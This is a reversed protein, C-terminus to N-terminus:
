RDFMLVFNGDTKYPREVSFFRTSYQKLANLWALRHSRNPAHEKKFSTNKLSNEIELLLSGDEINLTIPRGKESESKAVLKESNFM